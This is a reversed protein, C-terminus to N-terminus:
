DRDALEFAIDVASDAMRFANDVAAVLQIREGLTRIRGVHIAADDTTLMPMPYIHEGAQDLVKLGTDATLTTRVGEVDVKRGLHASIMLTLGHYTPVLVSTAALAPRKENGWVRSTEILLAREHASLGNEISGVAPIVNFALRHPFVELDPAKGNMLEATQKSLHAVGATGFSAAGCLVTAEAFSLGFAARLPELARTLAQTSPQALSVIRGAFPRDLVGDNVGPAVLPVSEQLRFSGSLDVVWLGERQATEALPAAVEAPVALVAVSSGKLSASTLKEIVLTDEGYDLEEGAGRESSVVRLAEAPHDRLLLAQVVQRGVLGSAGVVTIIPDSM